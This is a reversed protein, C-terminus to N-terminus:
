QIWVFKLAPAQHCRVLASLPPVRFLLETILVQSPAVAVARPCAHSARYSRCLHPLTGGARAGISRSPHKARSGGPSRVGSLSNLAWPQTSTAM